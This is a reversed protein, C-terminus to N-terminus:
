VCQAQSVEIPLTGLQERVPGQHGQDAGDTYATTAVAADTAAAADAPSAQPGVEDVDVQQAVLGIGRTATVASHTAGTITTASPIDATSSFLHQPPM